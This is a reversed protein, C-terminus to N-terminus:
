VKERKQSKEIPETKSDRKKANQNDGTHVWRSRLGGRRYTRHERQQM